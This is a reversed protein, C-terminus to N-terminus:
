TYKIMSYIDKGGEGMRQPCNVEELGLERGSVSMSAQPSCLMSCRKSSNGSSIRRKGNIREKRYLLKVTKMAKSFFCVFFVDFHLTDKCQRCKKLGAKGLEQCSKEGDVVEEIQKHYM